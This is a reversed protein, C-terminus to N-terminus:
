KEHMNNNKIFVVYLTQFENITHKIHGDKSPSQQLVQISKKIYSNLVAEHNELKKEITENLATSQFEKKLATFSKHHEIPSFKDFKRIEHSLSIELNKTEPKQISKIPTKLGKLKLELENRIQILPNGLIKKFEIQQKLEHHFNKAALYFKHDEQVFREIEESTLIGQFHFEYPHGSKEFSKGYKLFKDLSYSIQFDDVMVIVNKLNEKYKYEFKAISHKDGMRINNPGNFMVMLDQLDAPPLFFSIPRQYKKIIKFVVIVLFWTADIVKQHMHMHAIYFFYYPNFADINKYKLFYRVEKHYASMTRSAEISNNEDLAKYDGRNIENKMEILALKLADRFLLYEEFDVPSKSKLKIEEELPLGPPYLDTIKQAQDEKKQKQDQDRDKDRNTHM